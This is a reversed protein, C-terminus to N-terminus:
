AEGRERARQSPTEDPRDFDDEYRWTTGLEPTSVEVVDCDTIGVLRHKRGVGCTYGHGAELETEVLRGTDDEWIAKVRGSVLLWSEQKAEHAQLSLRAGAYIHLVKGMYPLGAPTWHLEWGWPKEIRRVFPRTLNQTLDEQATQLEETALSTRM